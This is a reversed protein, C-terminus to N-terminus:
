GFSKLLENTRFYEASNEITLFSFDGFNSGSQKYFLVYDYLIKDIFHIGMEMGIKVAIIKLQDYHECFEKKIDEFTMKVCASYHLIDFLCPLARIGDLDIFVFDSGNKWIINRRKCDGHQIFRIDDNIYIPVLNVASKFLYDLIIKDHKRDAFIEGIVNQM